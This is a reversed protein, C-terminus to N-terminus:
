LEEENKIYVNHDAYIWNSAWPVLDPYEANPDEVICPHYGGVSRHHYKSLKVRYVPYKIATIIQIKKKKGNKMIYKDGYIIRQPIWFLETGDELSDYECANVMKMGEPIRDFHIREISM